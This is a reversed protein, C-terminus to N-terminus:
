AITSVGQAALVKAARDPDDPCISINMGGMVLVLGVKKQLRGPDYPYFTKLDTTGWIRGRGQRLTMKVVRVARIDVLRITRSPGLPTYFAEITLSEKTIVLRPDAYLEGM